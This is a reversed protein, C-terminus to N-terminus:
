ESHRSLFELARDMTLRAGRTFWFNLYGHQTYPYEKKGLKVLEHEVGKEELEKVMDMTQSHLPDIRSTSLFCPPFDPTVYRVPSALEAAKRFGEPDRGLFGTIFLKSFPFKSDGVTVLDYVGYFLLLGKINQLPVAPATGLARALEPHIVEAAYMAAHYAGASDGALFVRGPDGGRSEAERFAWDVAAAADQLQERYRWRPAMRYNANFVLFGRSAFVRCIRDYTRKDGLHNAGGHVYVLVPFPPDGLPRFIDLVQLRNGGKVYPLDREVGAVPPAMRNLLLTRVVREGLAWNFKLFYAFAVNYPLREM